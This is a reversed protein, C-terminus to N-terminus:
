EGDAYTVNDWAADISPSPPGKFANPTAFSGDFRQTYGTGRVAELAPSWMPMHDECKGTGVPGDYLLGKLLIALSIIFFIIQFAWLLVYYSWRNKSRFTHFEDNPCETELLKEESLREHSYM